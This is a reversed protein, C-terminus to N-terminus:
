SMLWEKGRRSTRRGWRAERGLLVVRCGSVEETKFARLEGLRGGISALDRSTTLAARPAAPERRLRGEAGAGLLAKVLM